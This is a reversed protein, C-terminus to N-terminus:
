DRAPLPRCGALRGIWSTPWRALLSDHENAIDDYVCLRARITTAADASRVDESSVDDIPALVTMAAALADGAEDARGRWRRIRRLEAFWLAPVVLAISAIGGAIWADTSDRFWDSSSQLVIAAVGSAGVGALLSGSSRDQFEEAEAFASWDRRSLTTVLVPRNPAAVIRIRPPAGAVAGSPVFSTIAVTPEDGVQTRDFEYDELTREADAFIGAM